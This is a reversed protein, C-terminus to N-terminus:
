AAEGLHSELLRNVGPLGCLHPSKISRDHAEISKETDFVGFFQNTQKKELV